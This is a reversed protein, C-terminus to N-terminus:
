NAAAQKLCEEVGNVFGSVGISVSAIADTKGEANELGDATQNAVVYEGLAESQEAWIPGSETMIYQGQESLDKKGVGDANVCDWSVSEIRGDTVTVSVVNKYGSDDFEADEYQYTGDNLTTGPQAKPTLGDIARYLPDSGWICGIGLVVMAALGIWGNKKNAKM